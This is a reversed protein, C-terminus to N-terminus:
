RRRLVSVTELSTARASEASSLRNYISRDIQKQGIVYSLIAAETSFHEKTNLLNVFSILSKSTPVDNSFVSAASLTRILASGTDRYVDILDLLKPSGGSDEVFGSRWHGLTDLLRSSADLAERFEPTASHQVKEFESTRILDRYAKIRKDTDAIRFKLPDALTKAGGLVGAALGKEVQLGHVVEGVHNAFQALMDLSGSARALRANSQITTISSIAFLGLGGLTIVILLFLRYRIKIRRLLDAFNFHQLVSM